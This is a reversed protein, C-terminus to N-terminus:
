LSRAETYKITKSAQQREWLKVYVVLKDLMQFYSEFLGERGYRYLKKGIYNSVFFTLGIRVLRWWAVPPHHAELRLQAEMESWENTKNLMSTIDTHTYHLLPERLEGTSGVFAPTEHVKGHWSKLNPRYFLRHVRDPYMETGLFFNRRYVTYATPDNTQDFKTNRIIQTIEARLEPTVIEDADIYLVWDSSVYTLAETRKGAFDPKTASHIHPTHHRAITTTEDTSGDDLILLTDVWSLSDLTQALSMQSNKTLIIATLSSSM